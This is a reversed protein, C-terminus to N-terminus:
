SDASVGADEKPILARLSEEIEAFTEETIDTSEIKKRIAECDSVFDDYSYM